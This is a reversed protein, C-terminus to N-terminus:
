QTLGSLPSNDHSSDKAYNLRSNPDIWPDLPMTGASTPASASALAPGYARSLIERAADVAARGDSAEMIRALARLARPAYGRALDADARGALVPAADSARLSGVEELTCRFALADAPTWIDLTEM